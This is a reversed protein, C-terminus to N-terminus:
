KVSGANAASPRNQSALPAMILQSGSAIRQWEDGRYFFKGVLAAHDALLKPILFVQWVLAHLAAARGARSHRQAPGMGFVDRQDAAVVIANAQVADLRGELAIHAIRRRAAMFDPTKPM